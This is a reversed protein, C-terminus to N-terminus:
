IVNYCRNRHYSLAWRFTVLDMAVLGSYSESSSVIKDGEWAFRRVGEGLFQKYVISNEDFRAITFEEAPTVFMRSFNEKLETDAVTKAGAGGEVLTEIIIKTPKHGVVRLVEKM